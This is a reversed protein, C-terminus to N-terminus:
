IYTDNQAASIRTIHVQMAPPGMGSGPLSSISDAIEDEDQIDDESSALAPLHPLKALRAGIASRYLDSM